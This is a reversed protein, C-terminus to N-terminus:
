KYQTYFTHDLSLIKKDGIKNIELEVVTKM